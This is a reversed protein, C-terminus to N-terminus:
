LEEPKGVTEAFQQLKHALVKRTSICPLLTRKDCIVEKVAYPIILASHHDHNNRSEYSTADIAM